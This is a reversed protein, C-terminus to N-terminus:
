NNCYLYYFGGNESDFLAVTYVALLSLNDQGDYYYDVYYYGTEVLPIGHDKLENGDCLLAKDRGEMPLEKWDPNNKIQNEIYAKYDFGEFGTCVIKAKVVGDSFPPATTDSIELTKIDPFNVKTKDTIQQLRRIMNNSNGCGVFCFLLILILFVFIIFKGKRM